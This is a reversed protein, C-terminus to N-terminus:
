RDRRNTWAAFVTSLILCLTQRSLFAPGKLWINWKEIQDMHCGRTAIDAPNQDTAVYAPIVGNGNKLILDVRNREFVRLELTKSSCWSIVTRSDSWMKCRAIPLSTSDLCEKLLRAGMDM